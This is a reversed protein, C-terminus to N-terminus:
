FIHRALELIAAAPTWFDSCNLSLGIELVTEKIFQKFNTIKAWPLLENVIFSTFSWWWECSWYPGTRWSSKSSWSKWNMKWISKLVDVEENHFFSILGVPADLTVHRAGGVRGWAARRTMGAQWWGCNHSLGWPAEGRNNGEGHEGAYQRGRHAINAAGAHQLVGSLQDGNINKNRYKNTCHYISPNNKRKNYPSALWVGAHLSTWTKSNCVQLM